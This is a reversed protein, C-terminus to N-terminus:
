KGIIFRDRDGTSYSFYIQDLVIMQSESFNDYIWQRSIKLKKCSSSKTYGHGMLEKIQNFRMIINDQKLKPDIIRPM